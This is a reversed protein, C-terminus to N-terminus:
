VTPPKVQADIATLLDGALKRITAAEADPYTVRLKAFWPGIQVLWLGENRGEKDRWFKGQRRPGGDSAPYPDAVDGVSPTHAKAQDLYIDFVRTLTYQAPLKTLYLTATASPSGYGCSVDRGGQAADYVTLRDRKFGGIAAPCTFGSASHLAGGDPRDHFSDNQPAASTVPPAVDAGPTPTAGPTSTPGKYADAQVNIQVGKTREDRSVLPSLGGKLAAVADTEFAQGDPVAAYIRLASLGTKTSIGLVYSTVPPPVPKKEIEAMVVATIDSFPAVFFIPADPKETRAVLVPSATTTEFLSYAMGGAKFGPAACKPKAKLLAKRQLAKDSITPGLSILTTLDSQMNTSPLAILKAAPRAPCAELAAAPTAALAFGLATWLGLQRGM